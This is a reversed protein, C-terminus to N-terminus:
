TPGSSSMVAFSAVRGVLTPTRGLLPGTALEFHGSSLRRDSYITLNRFMISSYEPNEERIDGCVVRIVNKTPSGKSPLM